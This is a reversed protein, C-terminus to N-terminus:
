PGTAIMKIFPKTKEDILYNEIRNKGAM